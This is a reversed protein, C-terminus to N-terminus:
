QSRLRAALRDAPEKPNRTTEAFDSLTPYELKPKASAQIATTM